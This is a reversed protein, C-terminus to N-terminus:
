LCRVFGSLWEAVVGSGGGNVKGNTLRSRAQILDEFTLESKNNELNRFHQVRAKEEDVDSDSDTYKNRCHDVMATTWAERDSSPSGHIELTTIQLKKKKGTNLRLFAKYKINKRREVRRCRRRESLTKAARSAQRAEVLVPPLKTWQTNRSHANTSPFEESPRQM